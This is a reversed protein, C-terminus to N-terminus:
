AASSRQIRKDRARYLNLYVKLTASSCHLSGELVVWFVCVCDCVCVDCVCVRCFFVHDPLVSCVVERLLSRFEAVTLKGDRQHRTLDQVDRVRVGSRLRLRRLNALVKEPTFAPRRREPEQNEPLLRQVMEPLYDRQAQSYSQLTGYLPKMVVYKLM